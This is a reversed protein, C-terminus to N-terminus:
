SQRSFCEQLSSILLPKSLFEDMGAKLAEEMTVNDSNASLGIIVYKRQQHRLFNSKSDSVVMSFRSFDGCEMSDLSDDGQNNVRNIATSECKNEWDKDWDNEMERLRKTAEIGDMVPMQIDMLIFAYDQKKVM